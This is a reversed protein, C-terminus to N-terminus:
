GSVETNGGVPAPEASGSVQDVQGVASGNMPGAGFVGALVPRQAVLEAVDALLGVRTRLWDALDARGSRMAALALLGQARAAAGAPLLEALQVKQGVDRVMADWAGVKAEYELQVVLLNMAEALTLREAYLGALADHAAHLDGMEIASDALTLRATRALEAPLQGARGRTGFVTRGVWGPRGLRLVAGALLASERWRRQAHRLVALHHLGVLKASRLMWFTGLVQEIQQEAEDYQGSAILSPSRAVAAAGRHLRATVFLMAVTVGAVVLLGAGLTSTAVVAVAVALGVAFNVVRGITLDRRLTRIIREASIM